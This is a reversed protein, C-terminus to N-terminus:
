TEWRCRQFKKHFTPLWDTLGMVKSSFYLDRSGTDEM